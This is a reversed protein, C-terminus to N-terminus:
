KIVALNHDLLGGRKLANIYNDVQCQVIRDGRNNELYEMLRFLKTNTTQGKMSVRFRQWETSRQDAEYVAYRIEAPSWSGVPWGWCKVSIANLDDKSTRANRFMRDYQKFEKAMGLIEM